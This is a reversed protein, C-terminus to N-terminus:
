QKKDARSMNSIYSRYYQEVAEPCFKPVDEVEDEVLSSSITPPFIDPNQINESPNLPVDPLHCDVTPDVISQDNQLQLSNTNPDKEMDRCVEILSLYFKKGQKDPVNYRYRKINNKNLWEIKWGLCVLHKQLKEM